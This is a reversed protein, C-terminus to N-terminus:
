VVGKFQHVLNAYVSNQAILQPHTGREVLRGGVMVLIQDANRVTALRHAIMLVTRKQSIERTALALLSELRPDLNSAPEDMIVFPTEALLARAIAIRQAQGGSIGMGREGIRTEYQHPLTEIWVALQAAQAAHCVEEFLADPRGLCINERLTGSFLAPNQPVWTIKRRWTEMPIQELPIGNVRIVGEHPESFRLLLQALTTKGAGSPGVLATLKGPSLTFSLGSVAMEERGPYSYGVNELELTLQSGPDDNLIIVGPRVTDGSEPLDLLSFIRKAASVGAMSAHFRLGLNRLPLYFDPAIILIFLAGTFDMRGYLLRLGVEVAIVATSLTGVLELVLASLFTVRMIQMTVQRYRESAAEISKGHERSRNLTKLTELGRLSDLFHASLRSLLTWQRRTIKESQSGILIMFAPILPATLLLVLGSIFDVPFVVALIVAPILAALALQPLFQRFYADLAEVGEVMVASIEGSQEAQVALPGIHLIKQALLNRVAQKVRVAFVGASTENLLLMVARIIIIGLLSVMLPQVEFLSKGYLFVDAIIKVVLKAQFIAMLSAGLGLLITSGLLAPATKIQQLLRRDLKM